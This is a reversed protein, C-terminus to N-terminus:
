LRVWEWTMTVKTVEFLGDIHYCYKPRLVYVPVLALWLSLM